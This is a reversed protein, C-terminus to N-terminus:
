PLPAHLRPAAGCDIRSYLGSNGGNAGATVFLATGAQNNFKDGLAFGKLDPVAIPTGNADSITGVLTGNALDFANITGDGSNGILLKGTLTTGLDLAVPQALAMQWPANLVGGVILHTKFAGNVDFVDVLALGTSVAATRNAPAVQQAYAIYILVQSGSDLAQISYGAPLTPDSFAFSSATPTQKTFISDFVDIKNHFDAVYLYGNALIAGTYEAGGTDTYATYANAPDVAAAWSAIMSSEGVYIVQGPASKGTGNNAAFGCGLTNSVVGTPNFPTSGSGKALHV